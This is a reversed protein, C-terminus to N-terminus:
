VCKPAELKSVAAPNLTLSTCVMPLSATAEPQSSPKPAPSKGCAARFDEDTTRLTVRMSAGGFSSYMADAISPRLGGGGGQISHALVVVREIHDILVPFCTSPSRKTPSHVMPSCAANQNTCRPLHNPGNTHGGDSDAPPRTLPSTTQVDRQGGIVGESRANSERATVRLGGALGRGNRGTEDGSDVDLDWVPGM